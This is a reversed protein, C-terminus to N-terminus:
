IKLTVLCGIRVISAVFKVVAFEADKARRSWVRPEAAPSAASLNWGPGWRFPRVWSKNEEYIQGQQHFSTPLETSPESHILWSLLVCKWYKKSVAKFKLKVLLIGVLNSELQKNPQNLQVQNTHQSQTSLNSFLINISLDSIWNFNKCKYTRVYYKDRM